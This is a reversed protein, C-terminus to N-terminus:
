SNRTINLCHDMVEDFERNWTAEPMGRYNDILYKMMKTHGQNEIHGPGLSITGDETNLVFFRNRTAKYRRNDKTSVAEYLYIGGRESCIIWNGIISKISKEQREIDAIVHDVIEQFNIERTFLLLLVDINYTYKDGLAAKRARTIRYSVEYRQNTFLVNSDFYRHLADSLM